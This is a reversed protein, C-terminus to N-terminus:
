QLPHVFPFYPPLLLLKLRQKEMKEVLREDGRQQGAVLCGGRFLGMKGNGCGGDGVKRGAVLGMQFWGVGISFFEYVVESGSALEPSGPWGKSGRKELWFTVLFCGFRGWQNVERLCDEKELWFSM